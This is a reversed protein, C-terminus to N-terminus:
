HKIYDAFEGKIYKHRDEEADRRDQKEARGEEKWRKLIAECYKWNRKNHKVALEIAEAVWEASFTEEGDKLADAILPTLVGINEEYLRFVSPREIPASSYKGAERWQGSAFGKAIARGQPSNLFFCTDKGDEAKLLGGRGVAKELGSAVGAKSLGMEGADFDKPRLGKFTGETNEIRWLAYATVKLEDLDQIDKLLHRFFVDPIPTHTESNQFGKFTKM